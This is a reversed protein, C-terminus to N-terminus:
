GKNDQFEQKTIRQIGAVGDIFYGESDKFVPIKKGNAYIYGEMTSYLDSIPNEIEEHESKYINGWEKRISEEIALIPEEISNLWHITNLISNKNIVGRYDMWNIISDVFDIENGYVDETKNLLRDPIDSYSIPYNDLRKNKKEKKEKLYNIHITRNDGEIINKSDLGELSRYTEAATLGVNDAITTIDEELRFISSWGKTKSISYLYQLLLYEGPNIEGGQLLSMSHNLVLKEM